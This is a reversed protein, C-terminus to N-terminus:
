HQVLHRRVHLLDKLMRSRNEPYRNLVLNSPHLTSMMPFNVVKQLKTRASGAKRGVLVILRLRKLLKVLDLLSPLGDDIDSRRASRIKSVTGIYWPVINWLVTSSRPLRAERLLMCWNRATPDPNNRSIFGTEVARPGPAELLLLCRANLGGDCPDFFPINAGRGTEARLRKVWVTLPQIHPENLLRRRREREATMRLAYPEDPDIITMPLHNLAQGRLLNRWVAPKGRTLLRMRQTHFSAPTATVLGDDVLNDGGSGWMVICNWRRTGVSTYGLTRSGTTMRISPNTLLRNM